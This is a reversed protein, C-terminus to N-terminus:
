NTLENTLPKKDRGDDKQEDEAQLSNGHLNGKLYKWLFLPASVIIALVMSSKRVLMANGGTKFLFSCTPNSIKM